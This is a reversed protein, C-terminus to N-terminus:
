IATLAVFSIKFGFGSLKKVLHCIPNDFNIFYLLILKHFGSKIM